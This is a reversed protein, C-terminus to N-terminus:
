PMKARFSVPGASFAHTERPQPILFLLHPVPERIGGSEAEKEADVQLVAAWYSSSLIPPM